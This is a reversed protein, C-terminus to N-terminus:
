RVERFIVPVTHPGAGATRPLHAACTDPASSGAGGRVGSPCHATRPVCASASRAWRVQVARLHPALSRLALPHGPARVAGGPLDGPGHATRRLHGPGRAAEGARPRRLGLVQPRPLHGPSRVAGATRHLHGPGFAGTGERPEPGGRAAGGRMARRADALSGAGATQRCQAACRGPTRDPPM